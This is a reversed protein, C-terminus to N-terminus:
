LIITRLKDLVLDHDFDTGLIRSKGFEAEGIPFMYVADAEEILGEFQLQLEDLRNQELEGLFSSYQIHYLGARKLAKFVKTRAKDDSIDYIIFTLM